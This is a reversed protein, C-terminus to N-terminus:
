GNVFDEGRGGAPIEDSVAIWFLPLKTEKVDRRDCTLPWDLPPTDRREREDDVHKSDVWRVIKERNSFFLFLSHGQGTALARPSITCLNM